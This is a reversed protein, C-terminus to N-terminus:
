SVIKRNREVINARVNVVKRKANATITVKTEAPQTGVVVVFVTVEVTEVVAVIVAVGIGAECHLVALICHQLASSLASEVGTPTM